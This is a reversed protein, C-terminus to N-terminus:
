KLELHGSVRSGVPITHKAHVHKSDNYADIRRELAECADNLSRALAFRGTNRANDEISEHEELMDGRAKSFAIAEAQKPPKGANREIEINKSVTEKSSGSLLPM